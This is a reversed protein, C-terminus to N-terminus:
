GCEGPPPLYCELWISGLERLDYQDVNGDGTLDAGDCLDCDTQQWHAAFLAFDALNVRNDSNLDGPEPIDFCVYVPLHDSADATDTRRLGQPIREATYTWTNLVQGDAVFPLLNNSPLIYDIRRSLYTGKNPDSNITASSTNNHDLPTLLDLGTNARLLNTIRYSTDEDNFDGAYIYFSYPAAQRYAAIISVSEASESARISASGASWHATFVELDRAGPLDITAAFLTRLSGEGLTYERVSSDLIDYKSMIMRRNHAGDESSYFGEYM